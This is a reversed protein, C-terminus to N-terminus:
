KNIERKINELLNNIEANSQSDKSNQKVLYEIILKHQERAKEVAIVSEQLAKLYSVRQNMSEISKISEGILNNVISVQENNPLVIEKEKKTFTLRPLNM